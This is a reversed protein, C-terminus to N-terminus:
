GGVKISTWAELWEPTTVFKDSARPPNLFLKSGRIFKRYNEYPFLSKAAPKLFAVSAPNVVGNLQENAGAANRKVSLVENIFAYATDPNDAKPSIAYLELFFPVGEKLTYTTKITTKGQGAAAPGYFASGAFAFVADGSVLQSIQDGLSTALSKAQGLYRRLLTKVDDLRERPLAGMNLGLIACAVSLNGFPADLVSVKGKYQPKLLDSWASVNRVVGSDWTVGVPATYYPIGVWRGGAAGRTFAKYGYRFFPYLNKLNPIKSTDLPALLGLGDLNRKIASPFAILDIGGGDGSGVKAIIDAGTGIYNTKLTVGNAKLWPAMTKALEDGQFGIFDLTGSPKPAAGLAAGVDLGALVSFGIAAAGGRLLLERRDMTGQMGGELPGAGGPALSSGVGNGAHSMDSM